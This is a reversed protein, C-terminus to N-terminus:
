SENHLEEMERFGHSLAMSKWIRSALVAGLVFGISVIVIAAIKGTESSWKLYTLFAILGAALTVAITIQLWGIIELIIEILKIM